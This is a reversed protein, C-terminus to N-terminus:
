ETERRHGEGSRSPDDRGRKKEPSGPEIPMVTYQPMVQPSDKKVLFDKGLFPIQLLTGAKLDGSPDIDNFALILFYKQPDHLEKAAIKKM